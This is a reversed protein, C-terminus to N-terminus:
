SKEETKKELRFNLHAKELEIEPRGWPQMTMPM